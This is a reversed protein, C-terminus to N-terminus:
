MRIMSGSATKTPSLKAKWLENNVRRNAINKFRITADRFCDTKKLTHLTLEGQVCANVVLFVFPFLTLQVPHISSSITQVDCM